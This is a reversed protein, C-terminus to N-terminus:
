LLARLIDAPEDVARDDAALPTTAPFGEFGFGYRALCLSAGAGRATQWDVISDGVLMTAAPPLGAQAALWILGAPDPKRPHPGDGGLVAAAPFYRALDLGDLIRRTSAIPKNTLVALRRKRALAALVEPVGGYPRTTELLRAEYVALFRALADPPAPCSAAAFARAILAAAGDGVMRGIAAESLRPGGCAALV